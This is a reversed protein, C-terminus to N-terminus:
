HATSSGLAPCRRWRSEQADASSSLKITLRDRIDRVNFVTGGYQPVLSDVLTLEAGAGVLRRALNSGIFGLGGTILVRKGTFNTAPDTM